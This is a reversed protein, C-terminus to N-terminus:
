IAACFAQRQQRIGKRVLEVEKSISKPPSVRGGFDNAPADENELKLRDKAPVTMRWDCKNLLSKPTNM